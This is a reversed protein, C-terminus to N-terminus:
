REYHILTIQWLFLCVWFYGCGYTYAWLLVFRSNLIHEGCGIHIHNVLVRRDPDYLYISKETLGNVPSYGKQRQRQRWIGGDLNACSAHPYPCVCLTSPDQTYASRIHGRRRGTGPVSHCITTKHLSAAARAVSDDLCLAISYLARGKRTHTIARTADCRSHTTLTNKNHTFAASDMLACKATGILPRSFVVTLPPKACKNNECLMWHRIHLWKPNVIKQIISCTFHKHNRQKNFLFLIQIPIPQHCTSKIAFM